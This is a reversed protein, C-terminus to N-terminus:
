DNDFMRNNISGNKVKRRFKEYIHPNIERLSRVAANFNAEFSNKDTDSNNYLEIDEGIFRWLRAYEEREMVRFYDNEDHPSTRGTTRFEAKRRFM